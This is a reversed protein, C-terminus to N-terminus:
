SSSPSIGCSQKVSFETTALLSTTSVASNCDANVASDARAVSNSASSRDASHFTIEVLCLHYTAVFGKGLSRTSCKKAVADVDSPSAFTRRSAGEHDHPGSRKPRRGRVRHVWPAGRGCCTRRGSPRAGHIFTICPLAGRPPRADFSLQGLKRAPRAIVSGIRQQHDFSIM